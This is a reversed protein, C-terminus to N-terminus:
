AAAERVPEVWTVSTRRNARHLMFQDFDARKIVAVSGVMTYPLRETRLFYWLNVRHCGILKAAETVTLLDKM